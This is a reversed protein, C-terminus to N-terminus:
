FPPLGLCRTYAPLFILYLKEWRQDDIPDRYIGAKLADLFDNFCDCTFALTWLDNHEAQQLLRRIDALSAPFNHNKLRGAWEDVSAPVGAADKDDNRWEALVRGLGHITAPM